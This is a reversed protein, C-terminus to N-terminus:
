PKKETAPKKEAEPKKAPENIAPPGTVAPKKDGGKAKAKAAKEDDAKKKADSKITALQKQQDPTLVAEVEAEEKDKLANLQATLAAIQPDYGAQIDRIKKKQDEALGLKAFNNPLRNVVKKAGAPAKADPKKEQAILLSGALLVAFLSCRLGTMGMGTKM